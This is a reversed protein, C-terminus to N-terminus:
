NDKRIAHLLKSTVRQAEQGSFLKMGAKDGCLQQTPDTSSCSHGAAGQSRSWHAFACTGQGQGQCEWAPMCLGAQCCSRGCCPLTWSNTPGQGQQKRAPTTGCPAYNIKQKECKVGARSKNVCHSHCCSQSPSPILCIVGRPRRDGRGSLPCIRTASSRPKHTYIGTVRFVARRGFFPSAKWM